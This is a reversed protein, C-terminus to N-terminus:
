ESFFYTANFRNLRENKYQTDITLDYTEIERWWKRVINNQPCLVCHNHRCRYSHPNGASLKLEINGEFRKSSYNQQQKMKRYFKNWLINLSGYWKNSVLVAMNLYKSRCVFIIQEFKLHFYLHGIIKYKIFINKEILETKSQMPFHM